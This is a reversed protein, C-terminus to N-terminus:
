RDCARCLARGPYNACHDDRHRPCSRSLRLVPVEERRVHIRQVGSRVRGQDFFRERLRYIPMHLGVHTGSWIEYISYGIYYSYICIYVRVELLSMLIGLPWGVLARARSRPLPYCHVGHLKPGGSTSTGRCDGVSKRRWGSNKPRFDTRTEGAPKAARTSRCDTDIQKSAAPRAFSTSWRPVGVHPCFAFSKQCDVRVSPVAQAM